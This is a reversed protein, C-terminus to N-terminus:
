PCLSFAEAACVKFANFKKNNKIRSALRARVAGPQRLDADLATPDPQVLAAVSNSRGQGPAADRLAARAAAAGGVVRVADRQLRLDWCDARRSMSATIAHEALVDRFDQNGLGQRARGGHVAQGAPQIRDALDHNGQKFELTHSARVTKSM